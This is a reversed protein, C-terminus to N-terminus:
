PLTMEGALREREFDSVLAEVGVSWRGAVPLRLSEVSWEGDGTRRAARRIPEIGIDPRSLEVTVEKPDIPAGDEDALFISLSVGGSGDRHLDIQAMLRAGHLHASVPEMAEAAVALARPPPTFRWLAVTAFVAAIVLLEALISRALRHTAVSDGAVTGRTLAWRNCAALALLAAVLALKALLVRGYATDLLASPHGVQVVALVAGAVLLAVLGWPITRSFRELAASAAPGPRRLLAHLPALAGVWFAITVAHVFVMPRTLWQPDATSAHGSASLALGVGAMATATVARALALRGLRTGALALLLSLFAITATAGYSTAFGTRWVRPELLAGLRLGLADLGLLGVSLPALVLGATAAFIVFPLAPREGGALWPIFFAGGVGGFVAGYLLARCLWIAIRLPLDPGETSPAAASAAGVSFVLTGAIPHGDASIVRWSLVHTGDALGAPMKVVLQSGGGADPTLATEKGGEDVLRVVLPAVPENFGLTIEAPAAALVAGDAPVTSVLSAHALAPAAALLSAVFFLAALLAAGARGGAPPISRRGPVVTGM